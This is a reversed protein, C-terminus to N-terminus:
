LSTDGAGGASAAGAGGLAGAGGGTGVVITLGGSSDLFGNKLLMFWGAAGEVLIADGATLSAAEVLGKWRKM